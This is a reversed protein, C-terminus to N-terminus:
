TLCLIGEHIRDALGPVRALGWLGLAAVLLGAALRVRPRRLAPAIRGAALGAALLNPLTGLGFAVMVMAGKTAGGSVLALVLVSYVM